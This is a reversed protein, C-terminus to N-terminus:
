RVSHLLRQLGRYTGTRAAVAVQLESAFESAALGGAQVGNLDEM